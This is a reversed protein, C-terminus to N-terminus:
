APVKRFQIGALPKYEKSRPGYLVQVYKKVNRGLSCVSDGDTYIVQNRTRLAEKYEAEGIKAASHKARMSALLANLGAVTIDPENTAYVPEDTVLQILSAFNELVNDYSLQSVSNRRRTAPLNGPNSLEQPERNEAPEAESKRRGTLKRHIAKAQALTLDSAGSIELTRIIRPYIKRALDFDHDRDDILNDMASKKTRVKQQEAHALQLINQMGQITMATRTPNYQPGFTICHTILTELNAVNRAHGSESNTKM